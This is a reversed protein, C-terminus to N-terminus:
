LNGKKACILISNKWNLVMLFVLLNLKYIEKHSLPNLALCIVYQEEM